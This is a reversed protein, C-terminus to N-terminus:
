NRHLNKEFEKLAEEGLAKEHKVQLSNKMGKWFESRQYYWIILAVIIMAILAGVGANLMDKQADWIDGQTGLYAIGLDGGFMVAVAWEMLEYVASFALVFEIPFWFAWFGKAESIRITMERLPYALLFGFSFHVIRDYHNRALDFFDQMWFGFPVESYTYHSGYIHLMMYAFILGYSVNSLRFWKHTIYIIIVFPVTLWNEMKWDDFYRVNFGLIIWNLVFVSLLILAFKDKHKSKEYWYIVGLGVLGSMLIIALPNLVIDLVFPGSVESVDLFSCSLSMITSFVTLIALYFRQWGAVGAYYLFIFTALATLLQGMFDYSFGVGSFYFALLSM